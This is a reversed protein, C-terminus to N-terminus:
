FEVSIGIIVRHDAPNREMVTDFGQDAIDYEDEVRKYGFQRLHRKISHRDQLGIQAHEYRIARPLIHSFDTSTLIRPEAREADIQLLEFPKDFLDHKEILATLTICPVEIATNNTAPRYGRAVSAQQRHDEDDAAMYMTVEGDYELIAVNEFFCGDVAKYNEVLQEFSQPVPEVFIGKWGREQIIPWIPDSATNGINAGIQIFDIM